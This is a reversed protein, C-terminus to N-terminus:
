TVQIGAAKAWAEACDPCMGHSFRADSHESIYDELAHWQNHEDRIKKCQACTPLLGRLIHRETIDTTIGVVQSPKGEPDRFVRGRRELWHVGDARQVRFEMRFEDTRGEIADAVSAKVRTLDGPHVLSYFLETSPAVSPDVGLVRYYTDNWTLEGTDVNYVWAGSNGGDLALRMTRSARELAEETQKLGTVDMNVGLMHVAQGSADYEYRGRSHIWVIQGNPRIVRYSTDLTPQQQRTTAEMAALTATLDDPHVLAKWEEITHQHSESQIGYLSEMEPSWLVVNDKISWEFTGIRAVEHKLALREQLNRLKAESRKTRILDRYRDWLLYLIFPALLVGGVIWLRRNLRDRLRQEFQAAGATSIPPNKRAMRMLTGSLAMEDIHNRLRKALKEDAKRSIISLEAVITTDGSVLRVGRCQDPRDLFLDHLEGHTLLASDIDGRCLASIAEEVGGPYPVLATSPFVPRALDVFIPSMGLRTLKPRDARSVMSMETSWWPESVYFKRKREPTVMGAPMLDTRGSQLDDEASKSSASPLWQVALKERRAAESLVDIAFGSWRRNNDRYSIPFVTGVGIKVPPKSALVPGGIALAVTVAVTATRFGSRVIEFM